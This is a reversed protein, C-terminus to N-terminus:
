KGTKQVAALGGEQAGFHFLPVDGGVAGGQEQQALVALGAKRRFPACAVLDRGQAELCRCLQGSGSYALCELCLGILPHQHLVVPHPIEAQEEPDERRRILINGEEGHGLVGAAVAGEEGGECFVEGVQGQSLKAGTVLHEEIPHGGIGVLLREVVQHALVGAARLDVVLVGIPRLLHVVGVVAGEVGHVGVGDTDWVSGKREETIVQVEMRCAVVSLGHLQPAFDLQVAGGGELQPM